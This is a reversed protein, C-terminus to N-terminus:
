NKSKKKEYKRQKENREEQILRAEVIRQLDMSAAATRERALTRASTTSSTFSAASSAEDETWDAASAAVAEDDLTARGCNM